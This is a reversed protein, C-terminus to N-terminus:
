LYVPPGTRRKGSSAQFSKFSVTCFISQQGAQETCFPGGESLYWYERLMEERPREERQAWRKNKDQLHQLNNVLSSLIGQIEGIKYPLKALNNVFLLKRQLGRCGAVASLLLNLWQQQVPPSPGWCYEGSSRSVGSYLCCCYLISHSFFLMLVAQLGLGAWCPTFM